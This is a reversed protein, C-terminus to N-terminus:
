ERRQEFFAITNCNPDVAPDPDRPYATHYKYALKAIGLLRMSRGDELLQLSLRHQADASTLYYLTLERSAPRFHAHYPYICCVNRDLHMAELIATTDSPPLSAMRTADLLVMNWKGSEDRVSIERGDERLVVVQSGLPCAVIDGENGGWWAHAKEWAKGEKYLVEWNFGSDPGYTRSAHLRLTAGNSLQTTGDYADTERGRQCSSFIGVAPLFIATIFLATKWGSNM